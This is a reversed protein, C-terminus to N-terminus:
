IESFDKSDSVSTWAKVVARCCARRTTTPPATVPRPSRGTGPGGHRGDGDHVGQSRRGGRLEGRRSRLRAGGLQPGGRRYRPSQHWAGPGPQDKAGLARPAPMAQDTVKAAPLYIQIDKRRPSRPEDIQRLMARDRAQTRILSAGTNSWRIGSPWPKIGARTHLEVTFGPSATSLSLTGPISPM